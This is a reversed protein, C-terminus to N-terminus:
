AKAAATLVNRIWDALSVGAAAAAAEYSGREENTM